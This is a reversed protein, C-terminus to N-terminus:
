INVLNSKYIKKTITGLENILHVIYIGNPLKALHIKNQNSELVIKGTIDYIIVSQVESNISLWEGYCEIPNSNLNKINNNNLTIEETINKFGTWGNNLYSSETGQPIILDINERFHKYMSISSDYDAFIYNEFAITPAQIMNAYITKLNISGDFAYDVISNLSNSLHVTTLATCRAFAYRGISTVSDPIDVTTLQNCFSFANNGITKIGDPIVISTLNYCQYFAENGIKTVDYTIGGINIQRDLEVNGTYKADPNAVVEVEPLSTGPIIRYKIGNYELSFEQITGFQSWYYDSEYDTVLGESVNLTANQIPVSSFVSSNRNLALMSPTAVSFDKISSCDKFIGEGFTQLSEPLFVTTLDVCNIFAFNGIEKLKNSFRIEKLLKCNSFAYPEITELNTPFQFNYLTAYGFAYSNIKTISNPLSINSFNIRYFASEGIETLTYQVNNFTVNENLVINESYRSGDPNSIIKINKNEIIEYYYGDVEFLKGETLLTFNKWVDASQYKTKSGLPVELNIAYIPSGLFTNEHAIAPIESNTIIKNLASCNSFAFAEIKNVNSPIEITALEKCGAFTSASISTFKEPLKVDTLNTCFYFASEGITTTQADPFTVNKLQGCFRFANKQVEITDWINKFEITTIAECSEFASEGVKNIGSPLTFNTLRFCNKFTNNAITKLRIYPAEFTQLYTCGWFAGEGIEYNVQHYNVINEITIKTVDTCDKFAYDGIRNIDYDVGKFSITLPVTFEGSYKSGGPNAILEVWKSNSNTINYYLNGDSFVSGDFISKFNTWGAQLYPGVKTAPVTLEIQSKLSLQTTTNLFNQTNSGLNPPNDLLGEIKVLSTCDNFSQQGISLIRDSFVLTTFSSCGKFAATGIETVNNFGKSDLTLNSCGEFANNDIKTLNDPLTISTLGTCNKFASKGVYNIDPLSISTLNTASKFSEDGIGKVTFVTGNISTTTPVTINGSYKITENTNPILEVEFSDHNTINYFFGGQEFVLPQTVSNFGTWGANAYTAITGTPVTLNIRNVVSQSIISYNTGSYYSIIFVDDSLTPPNLMLCEINNLLSCENFAATGIETLSAPFTLNNLYTCFQFAMTGISTLNNSFKINTLGVCSDFAKTNISTISNPLVINNLKECAQFVNNNISTLSNSLTISNLTSCFAFANPGIQNVSDPITINKLSSCNEFASDGITTISNPIIVTTLSRCEEFMAEAIYTLKNPLTISKLGSSWFPSRDVTTVSNPLTIQSLSNCNAFANSGIHTITEPLIIETTFGYSEFASIGIKTVTYTKNNNVVTSPIQIQEYGSVVYNILHNSNRVVEVETNETDLVRYHIELGNSNAKFRLSSSNQAFNQLSCFLTLVISLLYKNM